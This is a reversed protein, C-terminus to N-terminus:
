ENERQGRIVKYMVGTLRGMVRKDSAIMTLDRLSDKLLKAMKAAKAFDRSNQRTREYAPDNKIREGNFGGTKRALYGDSASHYFSIDGIRGIIKTKGVQRAM